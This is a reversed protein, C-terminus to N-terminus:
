AAAAPAKKGFMRDVTATAGEETEVDDSGEPAAVETAMRLKSDAPWLSGRPLSERDDLWKEVDDKTHDGQDNLSLKVASIAEKRSKHDAATCRGSKLLDDLRDNLDKRHLREAYGHATRAQLSMAAFEPTAEKAKSMDDDEDREDDKAKEAEAADTAAKATMLATLLRDKFNEDDTDSPLVVPGKAVALHAIIAELQKDQEPGAPKPMDPNDDEASAKAAEDDGGDDDGSKKFPNDDDAMRYHSLKKGDDLSMRLACALAGEEARKFKSQSADVAHHVLDVHTICDQWDRGKGDRWSPYIIPSRQVLNKEAKDAATDDLLDLTLEASNGDDAVKFDDLWGVSNKASRKKDKSTSFAVPATEAPNSGHDWGSPIGLNEAKMERFTSQWHKLREPTVEITGDPSQYTGVRLMSKTLRPM